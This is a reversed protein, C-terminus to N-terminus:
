PGFRELAQGLAVHERAYEDLPIGGLAAEWAQRISAVGAAIGGPHAMIGGGCVYLLDASGLRRYTDPAQGAWQGSSFVPMIRAGFMPSLCSRASAIVSDDPESFKNRLGNTHLQDVGAVRWLKSYAPFEMGLYPHRSILGWGNRHGHIPLRCHRRLHALAPLGISNLSVMVCTGGASAVADHHRLMADVEDTINFAVMPKKGTRDAFDNVVRMVAEVRRELPSHPGNAMLEDDKIFDLGAEILTKVLAATVEPSLGVSPKIITGVIPRGGVGALRRTGEVGFQPGPYASAFAPPLDLDILKLGSFERLEYLNGAVTALLNPLSPGMNELPFSLVVEARRYRIPGSTGRPPVSGPLSPQEVAELEGIREVRAGFRARLAETEGPVRVFTGTSQEGAMVEAAREPPHPTEIRYTAFIRQSSM